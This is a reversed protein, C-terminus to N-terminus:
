LINAVSIKILERFPKPFFYMQFIFCWEFIDSVQLGSPKVSVSQGWVWHHDQNNFSYCPYVTQWKSICM